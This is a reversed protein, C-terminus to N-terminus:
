PGYQCQEIHRDSCFLVLFSFMEQSFRIKRRCWGKIGFHHHYFFFLIDDKVKFFRLGGLYGGTWQPIKTWPTSTHSSTPVRLHGGPPGWSNCWGRLPPCFPWFHALQGGVFFFRLKTSSRLIFSMKKVPQDSSIPSFYDSGNIPHPRGHPPSLLGFCALFSTKM